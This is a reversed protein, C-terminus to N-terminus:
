SYIKGLQKVANEKFIQTFHEEFYSTTAYGATILHGYDSSITCARDYSELSGEGPHLALYYLGDIPDKYLCSKGEYFPSIFSSLFIVDDLLSFQYIQCAPKATKEKKKQRLLEKKAQTIAETFSGLLDFPDSFSSPVECDSDDGADAEDTEDFPENKVDEMLEDFDSIEDFDEDMDEEIDSLDEEDANDKMSFLDSFDPFREEIEDADDVKTVVLILCDGSVPIAEIMLPINDVEFGLEAYAQQMMDQFFSRAKASGRALESLRLKRQELDSRSLICRIQNENLKEIKM